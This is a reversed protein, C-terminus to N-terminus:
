REVTSEVYAARAAGMCRRSLRVHSADYPRDERPTVTLSYPQGALEEAPVLLGASVCSDLFRKSENFTRELHRQMSTLLNKRTIAIVGNITFTEIEAANTLCLQSNKTDYQTLCDGFIWRGGSQYNEFIVPNIQAEALRNLQVQGMPYMPEMGRRSLPFDYGAIPVDLRPIGQATTAANRLLRYGAQVGLCPMWVKKARVNVAGVPLCRNPNYYVSVRQDRIALSDMFDAAQEPEMVGDVECILHNNLRDVVSTLADLVQLNQLDPLVLYTINPTNTLVDVMAELYAQPPQGDAGESAPLTLIAKKRSTFVNRPNGAVNIDSLLLAEPMETSLTVNFQLIWDKKEAAQALSEAKGEALAGTLQYIVDTTLLDRWTITVIVDAATMVAPAGPRASYAVEVGVPDDFVDDLQFIIKLSGNDLEPFLTLRPGNGNDMIGIVPTEYGSINIKM